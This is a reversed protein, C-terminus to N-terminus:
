AAWIEVAQEEPLLVAFPAILHRQRLRDVRYLQYDAPRVSLM